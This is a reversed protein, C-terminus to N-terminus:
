YLRTMTARNLGAFAPLEGSIERSEPYDNNLPWCTLQSNADVGLLTTKLACTKSFEKDKRKPNKDRANPIRRFRRRCSQFPRTSPMPRNAIRHTYPRGAFGRRPKQITAHVRRSSRTWERKDSNAFRKRLGPKAASHQKTAPQSIHATRSVFVSVSRSACTKSSTLLFINSSPGAHSGQRRTELSIGLTVKPIQQSGRTISGCNQESGAEEGAGLIRAPIAFGPPFQGVGLQDSGHSNELFVGLPPISPIRTSVQSEHARSISLNTPTLLFISLLQGRPSPELFACNRRACLPRAFM